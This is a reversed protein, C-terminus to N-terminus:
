WELSHIFQQALLQFELIVNDQKVECINDLAASIRDFCEILVPLLTEGEASIILGRNTRKFLTIGLNKELQKIQHSVASHTV